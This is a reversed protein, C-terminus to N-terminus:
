LYLLGNNLLKLRAIRILLHINNYIEASMSDFVWVDVRYELTGGCDLLAM